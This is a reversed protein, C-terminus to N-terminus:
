VGGKWLWFAGPLTVVTWVGAYALPLFIWTGVAVVIWAFFGIRYQWISPTV